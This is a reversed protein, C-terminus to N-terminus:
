FWFPSSEQAHRFRLKFGERYYEVVDNLKSEFHERSSFKETFSHLHKIHKKVDPEMILNKFETQFDLREAMSKKSPLAVSM